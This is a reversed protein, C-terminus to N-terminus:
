TGISREDNPVKCHGALTGQRWARHLACIEAGVAQLLRGARLVRNFAQDRDRGFPSLQAPGVPGPEAPVSQTVAM